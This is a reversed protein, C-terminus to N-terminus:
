HGHKHEKEQAEERAAKLGEIYGERYADNQQTQESFSEYKQAQAAEAEQGHDGHSAQDAHQTQDGHQHNGHMFLHILPCLLLFLYPLFPFVHEAHDVLLFYGAVGIIVLAAM